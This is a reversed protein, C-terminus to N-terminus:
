GMLASIAGKWLPCSINQLIFCQSLISNSCPSWMTVIPLADSVSVGLCLSSIVAATGRFTCQMSLPAGSQMQRGLFKCLLWSTREVGVYFLWIAMASGKWEEWHKCKPDSSCSFTFIFIQSFEHALNLFEFYVFKLNM